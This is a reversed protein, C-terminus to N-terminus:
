VGGNNNTACVYASWLFCARAITGTIMMETKEKNNHKITHISQVHKIGYVKVSRKGNISGDRTKFFFFLPGREGFAVREGQGGVSRM